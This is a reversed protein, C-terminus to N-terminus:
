YADKKLTQLRNTLMKKELGILKKICFYDNFFLVIFYIQILWFCCFYFLFSIQDYKFVLDQSFVKNALSHWLCELCMFLISWIQYKDLSTMYSITPLSRNTVWKFSISTLILTFTGSLRNQSRELDISFNTLSILTILFNMLFANLLYFGCKRSCFLTAIFKPKGTQDLISQKKDNPFKVQLSKHSINFDFVAETIKVM